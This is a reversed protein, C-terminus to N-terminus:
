SAPQHTPTEHRAPRHQAPPHASVRAALMESPLPSAGLALAVGNLLDRRSIARDMGLERDRKDHM